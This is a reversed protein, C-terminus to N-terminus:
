PKSEVQVHFIQISAGVTDIAERESFNGKLGWSYFGHGRGDFNFWRDGLLSVTSVAYYGPVAPTDFRQFRESREILMEAPVPNMNVGHIAPDVSAFLATYMPQCEPHKQQWKALRICDQSWDINSDGLWRHGAAPGGAIVNFYSMWHPTMSLMICAQIAIATVAIRTTTRTAVSNGVLSGAFVFLFPLAPIAYRVHHSFGNELTLMALIVAAPILVLVCELGFRDAGDGGLEGFQRSPVSKRILLRNANLVVCCVLCFLIPLPAKILLGILYYQHWGDEKWLGMLYSPRMGGPEFDSTQVDIGQLYLQPLPVRLSELWTGVFRNGSQGNFKPGGLMQSVFDVDGLQRFSRDFGYSLNVVLFAIVIAMTLTSATQLVPTGFRQRALRGVVLFSAATLPFAVFWTFKTSIAIGAAFGLCAANAIGPRYFWRRLWFVALVGASASPVDATLLSGHGLMWPSLCWLAAGMLGSRRGFAEKGYQYTMLLGGVSLVITTLRAICLLRIAAVSDKAFFQRGAEFEFRNAPWLAPEDFVPWARSMAVPACAVLTSLPPNVCYLELRGLKWYSLGANLRAPEDITASHTVAPVILLITYAICLGPLALFGVRNSRLGLLRDKCRIFVSSFLSEISASVTFLAFDFHMPHRRNLRM